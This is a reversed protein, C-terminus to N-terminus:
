FFGHPTAKYEFCHVSKIPHGNVSTQETTQKHKHDVLTETNGIITHHSNVRLPNEPLPSIIFM